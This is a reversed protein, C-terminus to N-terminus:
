NRPVAEQPKVDAIRRGTELDIVTISTGAPSEHHVALRNGSLSVSVVKAGKPLELAIEGGPTSVGLTSFGPTAVVTKSGVAAVGPQPSLTTMRYGIGMLGLVILLGLGTVLIKLNRQLRQERMLEAETQGNAADSM